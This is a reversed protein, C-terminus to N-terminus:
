RDKLVYYIEQRLQERQDVSYYYILGRRQLVEMVLYSDTEPKSRCGALLVVSALLFLAKKM